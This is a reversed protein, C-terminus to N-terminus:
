CVCVLALSPVLLRITNLLANLSTPKSIYHAKGKLMANAEAASLYGSLLVLPITPWGAHIKEILQIGNMGPMVYDSIVLDVNEGNLIEMARLGNAADVVQYGHEGLFRCLNNRIDDSDDVILIKKAGSV